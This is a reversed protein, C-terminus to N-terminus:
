AKKAKRRIVFAGALGAGFISLTLPEPVPNRVAFSLLIPGTGPELSRDFVNIFQNLNFVTGAGGLVESYQWGIAMGAPAGTLDLGPGGAQRTLFALNGESTCKGDLGRTDCGIVVLADITVLDPLYFVAVLNSNNNNLAIGPGISGFDFSCGNLAADACLAIDAATAGSGGIPIPAGPPNLAILNLSDQANGAFTPISNGPVITANASGACLVSVAAAAALAIKKVFDGM